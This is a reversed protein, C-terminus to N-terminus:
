NGRASYAPLQDTSDDEEKRQARHVPWDNLDTTDASDAEGATKPTTGGRKKRWWFWAGVILASGVVGVVVGIAVKVGTSLGSSGEERTSECHYYKYPGWGRDEGDEVIPEYADDLPGCDLPETSRIEIKQFDYLQPLNVGTIPGALGLYSIRQMPCTFNLPHTTDIRLGEQYINDGVNTLGSFDISAVPGSIEIKGDSSRLGPLSISGPTDQLRIFFSDTFSELVPFAVNSLKGAIGIRKASTLSPLTLNMVDPASSRGGDDGCETSTCITLGRSIERLSDLRVGAEELAEFHAESGHHGQEVKLADVKRLVPASINKALAHSLDLYEIHELDPLEIHPIQPYDGDALARSAFKLTWTINTIGNLVFPGSYTANIYIAGVITSCDRGIIDLDSQRTVLLEGECEQATSLTPLFSSTLALSLVDLRLPRM